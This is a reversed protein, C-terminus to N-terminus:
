SGAHDVLSCCRFLIVWHTSSFVYEGLSLSEREKQCSTQPCLKLDMPVKQTHALESPLPNDAAHVKTSAPICTQKKTNQPSYLICVQLFM